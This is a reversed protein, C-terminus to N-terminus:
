FTGVDAVSSDEERQGFFTRVPCVGRGRSLSDELPHPNFATGLQTSKM